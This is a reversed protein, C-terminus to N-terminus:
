RALRIVESLKREAAICLQHNRLPFTIPRPLVHIASMRTAEHTGPAREDVAVWWGLKGM